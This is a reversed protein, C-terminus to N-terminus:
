RYSQPLLFPGIRLFRLVPLARKKALLRTGGEWLEMKKSVPLILTYDAIQKIKNVSIADRHWFLGSQSATELTVINRDLYTEFTVTKGALDEGLEDMKEVFCKLIKNIPQRPTQPTTHTFSMRSPTASDEKRLAKGFNLKGYWNPLPNPSQVLRQLLAMERGTLVHPLLTFVPLRAVKVTSVAARPVRAAMPHYSATCSSIPSLM